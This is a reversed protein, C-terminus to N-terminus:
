RTRMALTMRPCLPSPLWLLSHNAILWDGVFLFLACSPPFALKKSTSYEVPVAHYLPPRMPEPVAGLCPSSAVSTPAPQFSRGYIARFRPMPSICTLVAQCGKM